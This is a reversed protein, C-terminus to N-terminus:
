VPLILERILLFVRDILMIALSGFILFLMLFVTYKLVDSGKIWQVFKLEAFVGRIFNALKKPLNLVKKLM